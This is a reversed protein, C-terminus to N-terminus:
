IQEFFVNQVSPNFAEVVKIDVEEGVILLINEGDINYNRKEFGLTKKVRYKKIKSSKKIQNAAKKQQAKAAAEAEKYKNNSM